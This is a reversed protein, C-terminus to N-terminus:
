PFKIGVCDECYTTPVTAGYKDNISKIFEYTILAYGNQNPHYGDLSFFGGSVFEADIDAANWKVGAVISKFYSNMDVLALNYKSAAAAISSNYSTIANQITAMEYQDLIYRDNMVPIVLGYKYCKMSDLPVNLLIHEKSNMHRYGESDNSDAITFPNDGVIFNFNNFGIAQYYDNLSDAKNKDLEAANYPVLTYFPFSELDPISAIVGKAGNATLPGLISDLYASFDVSSPISKNFGGVSAYGFIDEMGLWAIVFTPDLVLADSLVTSVGPQLAFKGYFPNENGTDYGLGFSPNLLDAVTAFPVALNSYGSDVLLQMAASQPTLDILNKLPSLSETGECDVKYGLTVQSIFESEWKKSNLGFGQGFPMLPQKFSTVSSLLADQLYVENFREALLAPISNIQGERYLAGDQYGALYNGGIAITTQFNADGVSLKPGDIKAKCSLLCVLVICFSIKSNM